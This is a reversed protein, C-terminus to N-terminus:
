VRKGNEGPKKRGNGATQKKASSIFLPISGAMAGVGVGTLIAEGPWRVM